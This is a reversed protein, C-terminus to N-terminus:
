DKNLYAAVISDGGTGEVLEEGDSVYWDGVIAALGAGDDFNEVFTNLAAISTDIQGNPLLLAAKPQPLKRFTYTGGRSNRLTSKRVELSWDNQRSAGAEVADSQASVDVEFSVSARLLSLGTIAQEDAALAQVNGATPATAQRWQYTNSQERGWSDVFVLTATALKAM